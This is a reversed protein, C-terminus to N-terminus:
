IGSRINASEEFMDQIRRWFDVINQSMILLNHKNGRIDIVQEKLLAEEAFGLRTFVQVASKQEELMQAVVKDLKLKLALFFIERALLTGLGKRRFSPHTVIRIEGVHRSWGFKNRHLTADGVIKGNSVALIPIVHDYDLTEAWRHIVKPDTVDEKLYPAEEPGIARFFEYLEKEDEKVMQRIVVKQNDRLVANKPYDSFM